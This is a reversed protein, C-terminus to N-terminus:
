ENALDKIHYHFLGWQAVTNIRIGPNTYELILEKPWDETVTSIIHKKMHVITPALNDPLTVNEEGLIVAAIGYVVDTTPVPDPFKLISKYDEWKEFIDRVLQFFQKATVGKQWYTIANYVDPLNNVDFIKRYYRSKGPQDYFDRCGRSIVVERNAFLNWWHNIPSACIMDAELKITQKYPSAEYCQWDNAFGECKGYPLMDETLITINVDPHWQRISDALKNACKVYIDGIAPILYGQDALL